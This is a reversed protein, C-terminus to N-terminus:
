GHLRVAARLGLVLAVGDKNGGYGVQVAMSELPAHCSQCLPPSGVGVREPGPAIHHVAKREGHRRILEFRDSGLEIDLHQFGPKGPAPFKVIETMVPVTLGNGIQRFHRLPDSCGGRFGSDAQCQWRYKVGMGAEAAQSGPFTLPSEYIIGSLERSKNLLCYLDNFRQVVSDDADSRVAQARDRWGLQAFNDAKSRTPGDVDMDGFLELFDLV